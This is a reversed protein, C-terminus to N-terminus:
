FTNKAYAGHYRPYKRDHYEVLEPNKEALRAYFGSKDMGGLQPGAKKIAEGVIHVLRVSEGALQEDGLGIRAATNIFYEVTSPSMGNALFMDLAKELQPGHAPEGMMKPTDQQKELFLNSAM